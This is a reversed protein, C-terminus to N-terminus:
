HARNAPVPTSPGPRLWPPPLWPWSVRRKRWKWHAPQDLKGPLSVATPCRSHRDRVTFFKKTMPRQWGVANAVLPGGPRYQNQGIEFLLTNVLLPVELESVPILGI